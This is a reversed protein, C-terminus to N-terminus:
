NKLYDKSFGELSMIKINEVGKSTAPLTIYMERNVGSLNHAVWIGLHKCRFLVVARDGQESSDVLCRCMHKFIPSEIFRHKDNLVILSESHNSVYLSFPLYLRAIALMRHPMNKVETNEAELCKFVKNVPVELNDFCKLFSRLTTRVYTYEQQEKLLGKVQIKKFSPIAM